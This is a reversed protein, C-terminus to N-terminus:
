HRSSTKQRTTRKTVKFKVPPAPTASTQRARLRYRGGQEAAALAAAMAADSETQSATNNQLKSTDEELPETDGVISETSAPESNTPRVADPAASELATTQTYSVDCAAVDACKDEVSVLPKDHNM